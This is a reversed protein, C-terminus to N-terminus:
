RSVEFGLWNDCLETSDYRSWSTCVDFHLTGETWEAVYGNDTRILAGGGLDPFNQRPPHAFVQTVGSERRSFATALGGAIIRPDKSAMWVVGPNADDVRYAESGCWQIDAMADWPLECGAPVTAWCGHLVILVVVLGAANIARM